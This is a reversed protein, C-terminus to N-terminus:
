PNQCSTEFKLNKGIYLAETPFSSLCFHFFVSLIFNHFVTFLQYNNIGSWKISIQILFMSITNM